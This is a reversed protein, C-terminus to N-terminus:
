NETIIHGSSAGTSLPLDRIESTTNSAQPGLFNIKLRPVAAMLARGYETKPSALVENTLGEEMVKGHRMVIVRECMLRVVEIDHSIFLYALGLQARLRHLLKLIAAQVSVDLAATPEDLILLSPESALARAIGVRAKQGGSLQHPYRGLLESNLSVSAALALVRESVDKLGVLQRLPDAIAAFATFHPTLNEGSDQFVHQIRRRELRHVFQSPTIAAIDIDDFFIRGSTPEILRSIMRALTSKGSGSEGVIGLSAGRALDFSIEDVALLPSTKRGRSQYTKTLRSVKLM